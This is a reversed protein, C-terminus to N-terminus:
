AMTLHCFELSHSSYYKTVAEWLVAGGVRRLPLTLGGPTRGCGGSPIYIGGVVDKNM